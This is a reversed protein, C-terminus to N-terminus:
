SNNRIKALCVQLSDRWYPISINYEKKIKESSMLSLYPRKAPTPYAETPIPHVKCEIDAIEFIAKAFDYWSCVGVNSYHYIEVRDNKLKPLMKMIAEALDGAYTPSGTQDSVVNLEEREAGLRLMTKVFNNGHSSYVWSTRIIVSDKPNVKLMAEEGDYKTQGYINQPAPPYSEDYPRYHRGDFVYDTSIHVLSINKEKALEALTKVALHNVKDATEQESEARDVATYAACNIIVDFTKNNFYDRIAQVNGLDLDSRVIFTFDHDSRQALERLESGLQGNSGTVLIQRSFSM